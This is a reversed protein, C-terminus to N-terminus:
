ATSNSKPVLGSHISVDPPSFSDMAINDYPPPEDMPPPYCYPKWAIESYPPPARFEHDSPASIVASVFFPPPSSQTGASEESRSTAQKEKCYCVCLKILCSLIIALPVVCIVPITWNPLPPRCTCIHNIDTVCMFDWCEDRFSSVKHCLIFLCILIIEGQFQLLTVM